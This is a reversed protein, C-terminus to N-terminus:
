EGSTYWADGGARKLDDVLRIAADQSLGSQVIKIQPEENPKTPQTETKVTYTKKADASM